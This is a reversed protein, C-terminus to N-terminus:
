QATVLSLKRRWYKTFILRQSITHGIQAACPLDCFEQDVTHSSRGIVMQPSVKFPDFLRTITHDNNASSHDM